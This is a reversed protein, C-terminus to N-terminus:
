RVKLFLMNKRLRILLNFINFNIMKRRKVDEKTFKAAPLLPVIHKPNTTFACVGMSSRNATNAACLTDDCITIHTSSSTSQSMDAHYHRLLINNEDILRQVKGFLILNHQPSYVVSLSRDQKEINYSKTDEINDFFTTFKNYIQPKINLGDVTILKQIDM